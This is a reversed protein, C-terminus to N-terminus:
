EIFHIAENMFGLASEHILEDTTPHAFVTEKIQEFSLHNTMMITISSILHEADDGFVTAGLLSTMDENLIYKIFGTSSGEVLARGSASFPVKKVFYVIGQETCMQETLGVSAIQPSTFIVSPIQNYKMVTDKKFIRDVVVLAQHSAVHALQMKGTVDGIAYIHDINTEMKENVVIGQRSIEITTNELTLGHLNPVRGVSELVRDSDIFKETDKQIYYTRLLGNDLKEIRTVQSNLNLNIGLQKAYRHLRLSVDKDIMPLIQGLFEVVEVKVGIQAYMFAFELGIIGGGIVTLTDIEDTNSLLSTSDFVGEQIIGPVNLHRSSSGTAIILDEWRYSSEETKTKVLIETNSLFSAHGDLVEVQYKNLLFKIGKVLDFVVQDKHEVANKLHFTAGDVQIGLDTSNKVQYFLKSSHILAKTPICGVNLCTGGISGEDILLVKKGKKAASIAAVYGGPGAGIIILEKQISEM